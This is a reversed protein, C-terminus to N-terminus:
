VPHPTSLPARILEYDSGRLRRRWREATGQVDEAQWWATVAVDGSRIPKVRRPGTLTTWWWGCGKSRDGWRDLHVVGAAASGRESVSMRAKGFTTTKPKKEQRTCNKVRDGLSVGVGEAPRCKRWFLHDTLHGLGGYGGHGGHGGQGGGTRGGYEGHGGGARRTRRSLGKKTLKIHADPLGDLM